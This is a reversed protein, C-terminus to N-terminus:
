TWKASRTEEVFAINAENRGEVEEDEDKAMPQLRLCWNNNEEDFSDSYFISRDGANRCEELLEGDIQWQFKTKKKMRIQKFYTRRDAYEISLVEVHYRFDVSEWDRWDLKMHHTSASWESEAGEDLFWGLHSNNCFESIIKHEAKNQKCYSEQYVTLTRVNETLLAHFTLANCGPQGYLKSNLDFSCKFRVGDIEFVDGYYKDDDIDRGDAAENHKRLDASQINWHLIEDYFYLCIM